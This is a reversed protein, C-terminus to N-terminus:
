RFLSQSEYMVRLFLARVNLGKGARVLFCALLLDNAGRGSRSLGAFASCFGFVFDSLASSLIACSRALSTWSRSSPICRYVQLLTCRTSALTFIMQIFPIEVLRPGGGYPMEKCNIILKQAASAWGAEGSTPPMASVSRSIICCDSIPASLMCSSLCLSGPLPGNLSGM